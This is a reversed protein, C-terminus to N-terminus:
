IIKTSIRTIIEWQRKSIATLDGYRSFRELLDETFKQEWFSLDDWAKDIERQIRELWACEKDTLLQTKM